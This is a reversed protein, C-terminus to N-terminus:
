SIDTIIQFLRIDWPNANVKEIKQCAFAVGILKPRLYVRRHKLFAFTRDFCGGGMGIRNRAADFAVLPTIVVDLERAPIVDENLPEYLGFENPILETKSSIEHFRMSFKETVVPVFVRKKMQWARLIISSTDVEVHTALYCGINKASYFWNSRIVRGAIAQSALTRYSPDLDARVKKLQRRIDAQHRTSNSEHSAM